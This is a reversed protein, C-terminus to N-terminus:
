MLPFFLLCCKTHGVWKIITEEEDQKGKGPKTTATATTTPARLARKAHYKQM